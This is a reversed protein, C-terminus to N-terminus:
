CPSRPVRRSDSAGAVYATGENTVWSVDETLWEAGPFCRCAGPVRAFYPAEVELLPNRFLYTRVIFLPVVVRAEQFVESLM